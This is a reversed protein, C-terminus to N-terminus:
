SRQRDPIRRERPALQHIGPRTPRAGARVLRRRRPRHAGYRRRQRHGRADIQGSAPLAAIANNARTQGTSFNVNSTTPVPSSAPYLVVHGGGTSGTVTVTLNAAVSRATAPVGCLGAFPLSRPV